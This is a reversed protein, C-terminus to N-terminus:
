DIAYQFCITIRKIEYLGIFVLTKFSYISIKSADKSSDQKCRASPMKSADQRLCRARMKGFADQKCRASPM